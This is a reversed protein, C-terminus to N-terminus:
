STDGLVFPVRRAREVTLRWVSDLLPRKADLSAAPELHLNFPVVGDDLGVQRLRLMHARVKEIVAHGARTFAAVLRRAVGVVM